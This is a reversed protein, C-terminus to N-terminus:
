APHPRGPTHSQHKRAERRAKSRIGAAPIGGRLLGAIAVVFPLALLFAFETPLTAFWDVVWEFSTM